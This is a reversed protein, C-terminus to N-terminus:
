DFNKRAWDRFEKEEKTLERIPRRKGADIIGQEIKNLLNDDKVIVDVLKEAFTKLKTEQEASKFTVTDNPIQALNIKPKEAKPQQINSTFATFQIKNLM